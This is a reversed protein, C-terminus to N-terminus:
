FTEYRYSELTYAILLFIRSTDELWLDQRTVVTTSSTTFSTYVYRRTDMQVLAGRELSKFTSYGAHQSMELKEADRYKTNGNKEDM